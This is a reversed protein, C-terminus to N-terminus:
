IRDSYDFILPRQPQNTSRVIALYSTKSARILTTNAVYAWGLLWRENLDPTSLVAIILLVKTICISQDRAYAAPAIAPIVSYSFWEETRQLLLTYALAYVFCSVQSAGIHKIVDLSKIITSSIGAIQTADTGLSKFIGWNSTRTEKGNCPFDFWHALFNQIIFINLRFTHNNQLM